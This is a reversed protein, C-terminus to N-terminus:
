VFLIAFMMALHIISAGLGYVLAATPDILNKKVWIIRKQPAPSAGKIDGGENEVKSGEKFTKMQLSSAETQKKRM